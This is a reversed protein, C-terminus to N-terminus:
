SAGRWISVSSRWICRAPQDVADIGSFAPAMDSLVVDVQGQPLLSLVRDFVVPERFDGQVFEVGSLPEM